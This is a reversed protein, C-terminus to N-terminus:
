LPGPQMSSTAGHLGRFAGVACGALVIGVNMFYWADTASVRDDSIGAHRDAQDDLESALAGRDLLQGLPIWVDRRRREAARQIEVGAARFSHVIVKRPLLMRPGRENLLVHGVVVIDSGYGGDM